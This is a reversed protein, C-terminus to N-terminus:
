FLIPLVLSKKKNRAITPTQDSLIMITQCKSPYCSGQNNPKNNEETGGLLHLSPKNNHNGYEQNNECERM